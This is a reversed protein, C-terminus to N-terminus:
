PYNFNSSDYVDAIEKFTKGNKLQKHISEYVTEGNIYKTRCDINLFIGQVTPKTM